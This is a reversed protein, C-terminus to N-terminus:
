VYVFREGTNIRQRPGDLRLRISGGWLEVEVECDEPLMGFDPKEYSRTTEIVAPANAFRSVTVRRYTWLAVRGACNIPLLQKRM